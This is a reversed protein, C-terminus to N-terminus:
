VNDSQRDANEKWKDVSRVGGDLFSGAPSKAKCRQIAFSLSGLRFFLLYGLLRILAVTFVPFFWSM